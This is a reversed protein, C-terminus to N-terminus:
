GPGTVCPVPPLALTARAAARAEEVEGSAVSSPAGVRGCGLVAFDYDHCLGDGAHSQPAYDCGFGILLGVLAGGGGFDSYPALHDADGFDSYPVLHDADIRAHDHDAHGHSGSLLQSM